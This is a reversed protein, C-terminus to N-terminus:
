GKVWACSLSSTTLNGGYSRQNNCCWKTPPSAHRAGERCADNNICPPAHTAGVLHNLQTYAQDKSCTLSPARRVPSSSSTCAPTPAISSTSTAATTPRWMTAR